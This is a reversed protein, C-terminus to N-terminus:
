QLGTYSILSQISDVVTADFLAVYGGYDAPQDAVQGDAPVTYAIIPQDGLGVTLVLSLMVLLVILKYHRRFRLSM